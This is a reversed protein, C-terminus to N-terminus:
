PATGLLEKLGASVAAIREECIKKSLVGQEVMPLLEDIQAENLETIQQNIERLRGYHDAFSQSAETSM